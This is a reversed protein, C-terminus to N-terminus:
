DYSFSFGVDSRQTRVYCVYMCVYMCAYMCVYMCVYMCRRAPAQSQLLKSLGITVTFGSKSFVIQFSDATLTNNILVYIHISRFINKWININADIATTLM